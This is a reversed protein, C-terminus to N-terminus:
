VANTRWGSCAVLTIRESRKVSLAHFSKPIIPVLEALLRGGKIWAGNRLRGPCLENTKLREIVAIHSNQYEGRHGIRRCTQCKRTPVSSYKISLFTYYREAM